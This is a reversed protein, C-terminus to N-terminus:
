REGGSSDLLAQLRDAIAEAAGMVEPSSFGRALDRYREVEGQLGKRLADLESRFAKAYETARDRQAAVERLARELDAKTIPAADGTADSV